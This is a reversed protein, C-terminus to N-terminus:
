LWSEVEVSGVEFSGGIEGAQKVLVAVDGVVFGVFEDRQGLYDVLDDDEAVVNTDNMM